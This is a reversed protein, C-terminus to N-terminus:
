ARKRESKAESPEDESKDQYYEYQFYPMYSGYSSRRMRADNLILGIIDAKARGLEEIARKLPKRTTVNLRVVLVTMDALASVIVPDIVALVPPLDILVVAYQKRIDDVFEKMRKSNLLEAPNPPHSGSPLIFLDDVATKQITEDYTARGTLIDSLGAKNRVKFIKHLRPKRLDADVVLVREGLQAFSIAMNAVTASKGEQPSTSTFAIARTASEPRSFQIATRVTRYDEAIAIKPFLHNILEIETIKALEASTTDSKPGYASRYRYRYTYSAYRRGREKAGNPSFHPIVGLSPLGTLKETDEPGKLTNDLFNILFALGLGLFGGLLFGVMLNRKTNPSYPTKPVLPPDVVKITSTMQGSLRASVLTENQQGVLKDLLERNTTIDIDLSRSLIADNNMRSVDVRQIDLERQLRQEKDLATRYVTNAAEVSKRIEGELQSKLGEVRARLQVMDPHDPTYTTRIKEEYEGKATLYTTNLSQITSSEIVQPLADSRLKSLERYKSEANIRDVQASMTARQLDAYKSVINSENENLKLIKKEESYKQLEREKTALDERLRSIQENLFESTQQTAEYRSEVSFLVFEAALANVIDYALRSHSSAFSVEVLRTDPVPRVSLGSLIFNTQRILSDSTAEAAAAASDPGASRSPFLWGMRLFGKVMQMLSQKPQTDSRLEARRSLDMKKAVREAITRSQLIRLQTNRYSSSETFGVGQGNLLDQITLRNSSPEELLLTATARYLPTATFSFLAALAVVVAITSLVIWKRKWAIQWYEVLDIEPKRAPSPATTV